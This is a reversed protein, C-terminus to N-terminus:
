LGMCRNPPSHSSVAEDVDLVRVFVGDSHEDDAYRKVARLGVAQEDDRWLGADTLGDLVVRALEDVDPQTSPFSPASPRLRGANRGTGFHSAARPLRAVVLVEVPGLHPPDPRAERVAQALRLRYERVRPEHTARPGAKTVIPRM